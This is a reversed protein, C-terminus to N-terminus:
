GGRVKSSGLMVVGVMDRRRVVWYRRRLVRACSVARGMARRAEVELRGWLSLTSMLTGMGEVIERADCEGGASLLWGRGRRGERQSM